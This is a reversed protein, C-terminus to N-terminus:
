IKIIKKTIYNKQDDIIKIFYIGTNYNNFDIVDQDKSEYLLQGVQSYIEIKYSTVSTDINLINKVPNPYLVLDNNDKFNDNVALVNAFQTQVTNTAIAPNYDFYIDADNIVIDGVAVNNKPKIKYCIFGQSANFNSSSAPLYIADFIFDINNGNTIEVKGSHSTTELQITNFDLKDDLINNVKVRSAFSNGTNQFRIIYHLYEDANDILVQSGELVTIDNPDYAGIITQNLVFQNDFVHVDDPLTSLQADFSVLEGITVNPITQVQLTVDIIRSQFPILNDFSFVRSNVTQSQIAQSASIFNFKSNNYTFAMTGGLPNTGNNYVVIRYTANFGPRAAQLPYIKVQLDDISQTPQLCFNVTDTQGIATFNSTQSLPNSDYNQIPSAITTNFEGQNAILEYTGDAQSFTAFTNTGTQTTVLVNPVNADTTTCGNIDADLKITGSIRNQFLGLNKFWAVKNLAVETLAFDLKGDANFDASVINSINRYYNINYNSTYVEYPASFNASGDNLLYSLKSGTENNFFLDQDGDNDVDQAFAISPHLLGTIPILTATGFVGLGNNKFYGVQNQNRNNFVLDKNNDGDLDTVFISIPYHMTAVIVHKTSLNGQGNSNEYWAIENGNFSVAVDMDSDNDIDAVVMDLLYRGYTYTSFIVQAAFTGNGNNKYLSIINNASACIVDKDGDSDIDVLRIAQIQETNSVVIHQQTFNGMGNANEHWVISSFDGNNQYWSFAMVDLDGDNDIDGLTANSANVLSQTIVNQSETFGGNTNKYWALKSDGPSSSVLDVDGDNDIDGADVKNPTYVMRGILNETGFVGSGNTNSYWALKNEGRVSLLIDKYGDGNADIIKVDRINQNTTILLQQMTFVGNGMNKYWNANAINSDIHVIDLKNDNNFDVIEIARKEDNGNGNTSMTSPMNVLNQAIGFSGAGTLNRFWQLKKTNGNSYSTVIDQFGDNDIDAIDYTDSFPSSTIADLLTITFNPNIKYCSLTGNIVSVIEARPENDVNKAIFKAISTSASTHSGAILHETFSGTGNTNEFFSFYNNTAILVDMDNDADVDIIQMKNNMFSGGSIILTAPGFNGLGDLNKCWYFQQVNNGWLSFAIDVDNDGDLDGAVVNYYSSNANAILNCNSFNGSGNNNKFWGIKSNGAVIIDKFGDNNVDAIATENPATIGFSDDIVIKQEYAVQANSLGNVMISLLLIYKKM